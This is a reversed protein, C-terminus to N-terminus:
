ESIRDPSDRPGRQVVVRLGFRWSGRAEDFHLAEDTPYREKMDAAVRLPVMSVQEPDADLYRQLGAQLKLALRECRADYSKRRAVSRRAAEYPEFMRKTTTM